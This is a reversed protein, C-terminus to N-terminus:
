RDYITKRRLFAKLIQIQGNVLSSLGISVGRNGPRTRMSGSFLSQGVFENTLPLM